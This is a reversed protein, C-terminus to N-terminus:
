SSSVARLWMLLTIPGKGQESCRVFIYIEYTSGLASECIHIDQIYIEIREWRFFLRMYLNCPVACLWTLLTM